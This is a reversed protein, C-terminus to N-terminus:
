KTKEFRLQPCLWLAELIIKKSMKSEGSAREVFVFPIEKVKFGQKLARYTTEIQFSYGNSQIKDLHIASLVRRHFCKFGGTFDFIPYGLWSRAYLSGARSLFQRWLPWNETGGYPVYRSALVIDAQTAEILMQPLFEPPHSFDADMQIIWDYGHVLAYQMGRIYARGIGAKNPNEQLHLWPRETQLSKVLAATQDPSNDDLILVDVLPAAQHIRCLLQAINDRENYTPILIITRKPEQISSVTM